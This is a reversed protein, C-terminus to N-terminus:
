GGPYPKPTGYKVTVVSMLFVNKKKKKQYASVTNSRWEKGERWYEQVSQWM